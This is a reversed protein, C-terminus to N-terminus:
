DRLRSLCVQACQAECRASSPFGLTSNTRNHQITRPLPPVRTRVNWATTANGCYGFCTTNGGTIFVLWDQTTPVSVTPDLTLVEKWNELTLPYQIAEAAKSAAKAASADFSAASVVSTVTASAKNLLGKLKDLLPVQQEALALAPLALVLHSSFRM